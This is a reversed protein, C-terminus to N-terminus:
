EEPPSLSSSSSLGFVILVVNPGRISNRIQSTPARYAQVVVGAVMMGVRKCPGIHRKRPLFRWMPLGPFRRGPLAVPCLAGGLFRWTACLAVSFAGNMFIDGDSVFACLAMCFVRWVRCVPWRACPSRVGRLCTGAALVHAAISPGPRGTTSYSLFLPM